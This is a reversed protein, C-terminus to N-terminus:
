SSREQRPDAPRHIVQCLLCIIRRAILIHIVQPLSHSPLLLGIELVHLIPISSSSHAFPQVCVPENDAHLKALEPAFGGLSYINTILIGNGRMLWYGDALASGTYFLAVHPMEGCEARLLPARSRGRVGETGDGNNQKTNSLKPRCLWLAPFM